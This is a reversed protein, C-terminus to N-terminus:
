LGIRGVPWYTGFTLMKMVNGRSEIQHEGLLSFFAHFMLAAPKPVLDDSNNSKGNGNSHTYSM